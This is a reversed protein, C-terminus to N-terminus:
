VLPLFCDWIHNNHKSESPKLHGLNLKGQTFSFVFLCWFKRQEGTNWKRLERWDKRLNFWFLCRPNKTLGWSHHGHSWVKKEAGLPASGQAVKCLFMSCPFSSDSWHKWVRPRISFLGIYFWVMRYYCTGFNCCSVISSAILLWSWRLRSSISQQHVARHAASIGPVNRQYISVEPMMQCGAQFSNTLRVKHKVMGELATSAKRYTQFINPWCQALVLSSARLHPHVTFKKMKIRSLSNREYMNHGRVDM